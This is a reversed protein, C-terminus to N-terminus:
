HARCLIFGRLPFRVRRIHGQDMLTALVQRVLEIPRGIEFALGADTAIDIGIIADDIMADLIQTAIRALMAADQDREACADHHSKPIKMGFMIGAIEAGSIIDSAAGKVGKVGKM